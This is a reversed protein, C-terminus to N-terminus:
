RPFLLAAAGFLNLATSALINLRMCHGFDAAAVHRRCAFFWRGFYYIAPVLLGLFLAAAGGGFREYLCQVLGAVAAVIFFAACYFTGEIGLTRSITRDARRADERHQYIQTLPFMGLIFSGAYLAPLINKVVVSRVDYSPNVVSAVVLLFVCTGQGIGVLLWATIGHKKLRTVNWSYIKSAFQYILCGFFFRWGAFIAVALGIADLALSFWLLDRTVPPPNKLAGISEVDRDFYSNFGNSATFLFLHLSIFVVIANKPDIPPAFVLGLMYVPLLFWSFPLRVHLLTSTSIM